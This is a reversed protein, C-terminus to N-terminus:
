ASGRHGTKLTGPRCGPSGQKGLILLSSLFSLAFVLALYSVSSGYYRAYAETNLAIPRTVETAWWSPAVMDENRCCHIRGNSSLVLVPQGGVSFEVFDMILQSRAWAVMLGCALVLAVCAAKRRWGHFFSGM